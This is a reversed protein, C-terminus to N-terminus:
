EDAKEECAAIARRLERVDAGINGYAYEKAAALLPEWKSAIERCLSGSLGAQQNREERLEDIEDAICRASDTGVAIHCAIAGPSEKERLAATERLWRSWNTTGSM